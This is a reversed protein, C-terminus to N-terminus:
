TMQGEERGQNKRISKSGNVYEPYSDNTLICIEFIKECGMAKGKVGKITRKM